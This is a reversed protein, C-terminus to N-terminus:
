DTKNTDSQLQNPFQPALENIHEELRDLVETVDRVDNEKMFSRLRVLELSNQVQM